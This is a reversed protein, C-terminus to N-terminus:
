QGGRLSDLARQVPGTRRAGLTGWNAALATPTFEVKPWRRRYEAARDHIEPSTAQADRLEKVARNWRGRESATEPQRPMEEAVADWLPDPKRGQRTLGNPSVEEPITLSPQPAASAGKPATPQARKRVPQARQWETFPALAAGNEPHVTYETAGGRGGKRSGTPVILEHEELWRLASQVTRRCLGSKWTLRDVGPFAKTGDDKAHDALDLLVLKVTPDLDLEWVAAMVRVSM